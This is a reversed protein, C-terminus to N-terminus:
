THLWILAEILGQMMNNAAHTAGVYFETNASIQVPGCVEERPEDGHRPYATM